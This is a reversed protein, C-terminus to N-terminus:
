RVCLARPLPSSFAFFFNFFVHDGCYVHQVPSDLVRCVAGTDNRTQVVTNPLQASRFFISERFTPEVQFLM